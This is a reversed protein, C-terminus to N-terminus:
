CEDDIAFTSAILCRLPPKGSCHSLTFPNQGLLLGAELPKVPAILCRLPTKGLCHSLAFPTQRLLSVAYLPEARTILCDLPTKGSCYSIAFPNQRLLSVAWLCKAPAIVYGLPFLAFPKRPCPLQSGFIYTGSFKGGGILWGKEPQRPANELDFTYFGTLVPRLKAPPGTGGDSESANSYTSVQIPEKSANINKRAGPNWDKDGLKQAVESFSDRAANNAPILIAFVSVATDCPDMNTHPGYSHSQTTAPYFGRAIDVKQPISGINIINQQSLPLFFSFSPPSFSPQLLCEPHM